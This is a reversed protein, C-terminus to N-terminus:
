SDAKSDAGPVAPNHLLVHTPVGSASSDNM